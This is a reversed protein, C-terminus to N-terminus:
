MKSAAKLRLKKLNYPKDFMVEVDYVGDEFKKVSEIRGNGFKPHSYPAGKKYNNKSPIDMKPKIETEPQPEVKPTLIEDLDIILPIKFRTSDKIDVGTGYSDAHITSHMKLRSLIEDDSQSDNKLLLSILKNNYVIVYYMNGSEDKSVGNRVTVAKITPKYIKNDRKVTVVAIKVAYTINDSEFPEGVLLSIRSTLSSKIQNKIYNNIIEKNEGEHYIAYPLIIDVIDKVRENVTDDFHTSKKAEDITDPLSKFDTKSAFEHAMKEWKQKEDGKAKSAKYFFYAAQKKSKFEESLTITVIPELQLIKRFYNFKSLIQDQTTTHDFCNSFKEYDNDQVVKNIYPFNKSLDM